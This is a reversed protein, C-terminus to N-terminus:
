NKLIITIETEYDYKVLYNINYIFLKKNYKM